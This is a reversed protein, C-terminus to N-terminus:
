FYCTLLSWSSSYDSSLDPGLLSFPLCSFKCISMIYLSCLTLRTTLEKEFPPGGVVYVSSFCDTSVYLSVDGFGFGFVLGM